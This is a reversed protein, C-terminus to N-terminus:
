HHEPTAGVRALVYYTQQMGAGGVDPRSMTIGVVLEGIAHLSGGTPLTELALQSIVQSRATNQVDVVPSGGSM